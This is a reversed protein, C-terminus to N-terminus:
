YSPRLPAEGAVLRSLDDISFPFGGSAWILSKRGPVAAFARAIQEMGDLTLQAALMRQTALYNQEMNDLMNTLAQSERSVQGKGSPQPLNSATSDPFSEETEAVPAQGGAQLGRLAKALVAPDTTFDHIVQAGGRTLQLLAIPEHGSGLEGLFKLIQDHAYSRDYFKTNISDMVIITLRGPVPQNALYNSFEGTPLAQWQQRTAATKIEEFVGITREAGNELVTFDGKALGTIPAGSKERVLTPVLVLETRATITAAPEPPKTDQALAATRFLFAVAVMSILIKM